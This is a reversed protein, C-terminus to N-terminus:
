KETLAGSAEVWTKQLRTLAIINGALPKLLADIDDTDPPAKEGISECMEVMTSWRQAPRQEDLTARLLALLEDHDRGQRTKASGKRKQRLRTATRVYRNDRDLSGESAMQVVVRQWNTCERLTKGLFKAFAVPVLSTIREDPDAFRARLEDSWQDYPNEGPAAKQPKPTPPPKPNPAARPQRRKQASPAGHEHEHDEAADFYPIQLIDRFLTKLSDTLACKYNAAEDANRGGAKIPMETVLERTEGSVHALEWVRLCIDARDDREAIIRASRIPILALGHECLPDKGARLLAQASPYAYKLYENYKDPACSAAAGQAAALAAALESRQNDDTM